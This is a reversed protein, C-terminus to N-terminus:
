FLRKWWPKPAETSDDRVSDEVRRRLEGPVPTQRRDFALLEEPTAFERSSETRVGQEQTSEVEGRTTSAHRLKQNEPNM